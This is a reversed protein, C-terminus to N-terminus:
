LRLIYTTNAQHLTKQIIVIKLERKTFLKNHSLNYKKGKRHKRTDNKENSINNFVYNLILSQLDAAKSQALSISKLKTQM